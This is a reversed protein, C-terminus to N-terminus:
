KQLRRRAVCRMWATARDSAHESPICAAGLEIGVDPVNKQPFKTMSFIRRGNERKRQILFLLQWISAYSLASLVPVSDLLSAWSCHPLPLQGGGFHGLIHQLVTFCFILVHCESQWQKQRILDSLHSGQWRWRAHTHGQKSLYIYFYEWYLPRTVQDFNM